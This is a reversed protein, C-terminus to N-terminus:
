RLVTEPDGRCSIMHESEFESVMKKGQHRHLHLQRGPDELLDDADVVVSKQGLTQTVYEYMLWVEHM